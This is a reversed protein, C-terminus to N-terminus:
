RIHVTISASDKKTAFTEIIYLGKADSASLIPCDKILHSIRQVSLKESARVPTSHMAQHVIEFCLKSMTLKAM